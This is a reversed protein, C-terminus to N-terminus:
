RIVRPMPTQCRSELGGREVPFAEHGTAPKEGHGLSAKTGPHWKQEAEEVPPM